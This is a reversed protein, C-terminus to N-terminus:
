CRAMSTWAASADTKALVADWIAHGGSFADLTEDDVEARRGTRASNIAGCSSREEDAKDWLGDATGTVIM